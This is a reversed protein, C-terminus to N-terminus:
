HVTKRNSKSPLTKGFYCILIRGDELTHYHLSLDFHQPHFVYSYFTIERDLYHATRSEIFIQDDPPPDDVIVLAMGSEAFFKDTSIERKATMPYLSSSLAVFMQWALSRVESSDSNPFEKISEKVRPHFALHSDLCASAMDILESMTRPVSNAKQYEEIKQDLAKSDKDTPAPLLSPERMRENQAAIQVIKHVEEISLKRSEKRHPNLIFPRMLQLADKFFLPASATRYNVDTDGFDISKAAALAQPMSSFFPIYEYTLKDGTQDEQDSEVRIYVLHQRNTEPNNFSCFIVSTGALLDYLKKIKEPEKKVEKLVQSIKSM